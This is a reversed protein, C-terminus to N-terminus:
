IKSWDQECNIAQDPKLPLCIKVTTLPETSPSENSPESSIHISGKHLGIIHHCMSLGIGIGDLKTSIFPEFLKDQVEKALGAGNDAIIIEFHAGNNTKQLQTQIMIKPIQAPQEMVADIANNLLSFIVQRMQLQDFYLLSHQSAFHTSLQIASTSNALETLDITEKILTNICSSQYNLTNVNLTARVEKIIQGANEANVVVRDMAQNIEDPSAKAKYLRQMAQTYSLIATLPQNLKDALSSSIERMASLRAFQKLEKFNKKLLTEQHAHNINFLTILYGDQVNNSSLYRNISMTAAYHKQQHFFHTNFNIAQPKDNLQKLAQQFDEANMQASLQTIALAAFFQSGFFDQAANNSFFVQGKSDVMLMIVPLQDILSELDSDITPHQDLSLKSYAM